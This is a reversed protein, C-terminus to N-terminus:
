HNSYQNLFFVSYETNNDNESKYVIKHGTM